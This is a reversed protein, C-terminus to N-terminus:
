DASVWGGAWPGGNHGVDNRLGGHSPPFWLDEFEPAPDGADVCPSSAPVSLDDWSTGAGPFQPDADFNGTGAHGGSVNSYSVSLGAGVLPAGAFLPSCSGPDAVTTPYEFTQCATNQRVVNGRALAVVGADAVFVGAQVSWAGGSTPVADGKVARNRAVTSNSVLLSDGAGGDLYLGAGMSSEVRADSWVRNGALISNRVLVAVDTTPSAVHLGGGHADAGDFMLGVATARNDSLVVRTLVAATDVVSVGGGRTGVTSFCDNCVAWSANGSVVTDVLELLGSDEVRVGGGNSSAAFSSLEPAATNGNVVCDELYVQNAGSVWLGGGDGRAANDELACGTLVLSEGALAAHIGGGDGPTTNDRVTCANMSVTSAVIRVGGRRAREVITGELLSAASAHDFVLGEWRTSARRSTFRVPQASTGETVLAGLVRLEVGEWARVEVGAEVVLSGVHVDGVALYPSGALTWTGSVAGSVFTVGQGVAVQGPPLEGQQAHVPALALLLASLGFALRIM